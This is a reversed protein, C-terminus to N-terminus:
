LTSCDNIRDYEAHTGIFRIYVCQIKFLVIAVLRYKNGKIDFIYRDNGAADVSGFTKRIDDFCTWQSKKVKSAWDYLPVKAHTHKDSFEKLRKPTIIRMAVIRSYLSLAFYKNHLYKISFSTINVIYM